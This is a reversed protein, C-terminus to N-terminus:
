VGRLPLLPPPLLLLLARFVDPVGTDTCHVSRAHAAVV